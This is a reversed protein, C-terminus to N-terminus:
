CVLSHFSLVFNQFFKNPIPLERLPFQHIQNSLHHPHPRCFSNVRRCGLCSHSSTNLRQVVSSQSSQRTQCQTQLHIVISTNPSIYSLPHFPVVFLAVRQNTQQLMVPSADSTPPSSKMVKLPAISNVHRNRNQISYGSPHPLRCHTSYCIIYVYQLEFM